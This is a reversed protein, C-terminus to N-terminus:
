GPAPQGGRFDVARTQGRSEAAQGHFVFSGKGKRKAQYMAEDAHRVLDQESGPDIGSFVSIGISASVAIDHGSIVCPLSVETILRQAIEGIHGIAGVEDLLVLFEDGGLRVATDPERVQKRIRSAVERLLDDGVDHGHADNVGKFGDLDIFLVALKSRRRKARAIAQALRDELLNRNPLGTLRDFNALRKVAEEAQRRREVEDRLERNRRAIYAAGAIPLFIAVSFLEDLELDEHERTFDFLWEFFHFEGAISYVVACALVLWWADRQAQTGFLTDKFSSQQAM